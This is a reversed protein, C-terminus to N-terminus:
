GCLRRTTEPRGARRVGAAFARTDATPASTLSDIGYWQQGDSPNQRPSYWTYLVTAAIGCDLHGLAGLTASIYAPRQAAPVYDTTGPPSTSWGVETVYLPVSRLGVAYLAARTLRIKDLVVPPTGYPHIAIGDLHGRLQPRAALMQAVFSTPQTLGGVIVRAQPQVADIATRAALYLDSYQAPEPGPLWFYGADPENWIEYTQVPEAPLEPHAQWFSGGPGYRAAVARAYAAYDADSAPASHDAGPISEAWPATYDLIPLWQLHQAALEAAITDDFTWVYHHVGGAPAVPESSEWLADSRAITAGTARLAALQASIQPATLGPSNFLINVSAGVAENMGRAPRPHHGRSGGAALLAVAGLVALVLAAAGGAIAARAARKWPGRM